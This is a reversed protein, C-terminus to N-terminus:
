RAAPQGARWAPPVATAAEELPPTSLHIFEFQFFTEPFGFFEEVSESWERPFDVFPALEPGPNDDVGIQGRASDRLPPARASPAPWSWPAPM